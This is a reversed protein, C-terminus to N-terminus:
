KPVGSKRSDRHHSAFSRVTHLHLEVLEDMTLAGLYGGALVFVTPLAHDACWRAVRRERDALAEASVTPYPDMGANHILLGTDGPIRDLLGELAELYEDDSPASLIVLQNPDTPEYRDFSNVSLDLHLVRSNEGVLETTGGGCHADVDLIVVQGDVLAAARKAAAALGNVTCFGSGHARGAHHLGSSLSGSPGSTALAEEVAALVGATSNVAMSWIGPDWPFGQSGALHAPRGTRLADVYAPDHVETILEEALVVLGAPDALEVNTLDCATLARAIEGSKRTTEFAHVPATYENNFFVKV